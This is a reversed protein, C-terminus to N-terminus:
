KLKEKEFDQIMIRLKALALNQIQRVRERTLSFHKGVEDLTKEGGETLGFRYILIDRERESLTQMVELLMQKMSKNELHELPTQISNDKIIESLTNDNEEGVPADLSVTPANLERLAEVKRVPLNLVQSLEEVTPEVGTKALIMSSIKRMKSLKDELHIPLRVTKSYNSIARRINQRIWWAGYTSFKFGKSPDFKSVAHMLGINGENILDLLSLGMGEYEKAIKVVLRLNAKIMKERAQEDGEKIKNGLEIEQEPTLLPIAGLEKMYIKMSSNHERSSHKQSDLQPETTTNLSHSTQKLSDDISMSVSNLPLTENQKLIELPRNMKQKYLKPM